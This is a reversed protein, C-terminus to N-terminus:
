IKEGEERLGQKPDLAVVIKRAFKHDPALGLSVLPKVLEDETIGGDGDRDWSMFLERAFKINKSTEDNDNHSKFDRKHM